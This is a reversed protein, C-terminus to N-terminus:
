TTPIEIWFLSGKDVESSVGIKGSLQEMSHKVISLGLGTGEPYNTRTLDVRYFREFIRDLKDKPIGVGNDKIDIRFSNDILSVRVWIDGGKRNYQIANVLLNSLISHLLDKNAKIRIEDRIDPLEKHFNLKKAHALTEYEAIIAKIVPMPNLKKLEGVKKKEVRSLQLLDNVLNELHSTQSIIKKLFKTKWKKKDAAGSFLTEAYGQISTLPTKFEHSVNAVFDQRITELQHLQTVDNLTLLFGSQKLEKVKLPLIQYDIYRNDKCNVRKRIPKGKKLFKKIDDKLEPIHLWNEYPLTTDNEPSVGLIERFMTNHLIAIGNRNFAAVGENLSNFITLLQERQSNFKEKYNELKGGLINIDMALSDFEEYKQRPLPKFISSDRQKQLLIRIRSMHKNIWRWFVISGITIIVLIILSIKFMLGTIFNIRPKFDPDFLAIRLFGIVEGDKKIPECYYILKKQITNSKRIALGSGKILAEQVEPRYLHNEVGNLESTKLESDSIVKGNKDILTARLGIRDKIDDTIKKLSFFDESEFSQIDILAKALSTNKKFNDRLEEILFANTRYWIFINLSILTGLTVIIIFLLTSHSTKKM